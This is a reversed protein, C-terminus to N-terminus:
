QLYADMTLENSGLPSSFTHVLYYSFSSFLFILICSLSLLPPVSLDGLQALPTARLLTPFLSTPETCCGCSNFGGVPLWGVVVKDVKKKENEEEVYKKEERRKTGDPKPGLQERLAELM